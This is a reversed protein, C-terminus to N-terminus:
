ARPSSRREPGSYGVAPGHGRTAAPQLPPHGGAGDALRFVAVVDALRQAQERLSDAAAASQEVLAANQQTVQDLQSVASNVEVLGQAQEATAATIEAILAAVQGAKDVIDRITNGAQHVLQTGADVKSVSASILSKIERAAEASRQALSRVEGAVVAFGRGAEGARAAEVAANLALINTQFAIGDIVGIIDHIKQSSQNIEDMTSVVQGVVTGGRQAVEANARAMHSASQAAESSQRVTGTIQEMSAATEELNSATQETRNSLDQNGSAIEGSAARIGEAAQRVEGVTRSLSAQMDALCRMLEALEDAGHLDPRTTLDGRAIAVALGQAQELPRCISQMNALTTPVVVLMAALLVGGFLWLATRATRDSGAVVASLETALLDELRRVIGDAQQMPDAAPALAQQAAATDAFAGAGMRSAVPEVAARYAKLHGQLAEVQANDEDAEGALMERLAAETRGVAEQWRAQSARWPEPAQVHLAMAQEHRRADALALQLRGLAVAESLSHDVIDHQVTQMRQLGWWGAGGVVCLLAVVVGIASLMRVRISFARMMALLDM